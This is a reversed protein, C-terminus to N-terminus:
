GYLKQIWAFDLASPRDKYRVPDVGNGEKDLVELGALVPFAVMISSELQELQKTQLPTLPRPTGAQKDRVSRVDASAASTEPQDIDALETPWENFREDSAFEWRRLLEEKIFDNTASVGHYAKLFRRVAEVPPGGSLLESRQFHPAQDLHPLGLAHGIEHLAFFQFARSQFYQEADGFPKADPAPLFEPLWGLYMTPAGFRRRLAYTGLESVPFDIYREPDSATRPVFQPLTDLNILIDYPPMSAPEAQAGPSAFATTGDDPLFSVSLNVKGLWTAFAEEIRRRALQAGKLDVDAQFAVHLKQGPTWKFDITGAIKIGQALETLNRDGKLSCLNLLLVEGIGDVATQGIVVGNRLLRWAEPLDAVPVAQSAVKDAADIRLLRLAGDPFALLLQGRTEDCPLAQLDIFPEVRPPSAFACTGLVAGAKMLDLLGPEAVEELAGVGVTARYITSPKGPLRLLVKWSDPNTDLVAHYDRNKDPLANTWDVRTWTNVLDLVSADVEYSAAHRTLAVQFRSAPLAGGSPQSQSSDTAVQANGRLNAHVSGTEARTVRKKGLTWFSTDIGRDTPINGITVEPLDRHEVGSFYADNVLYCSFAGSAPEPKIPLLAFAAQSLSTTAVRTVKRHGDDDRGVKELGTVFLRPEERGAEVQKAPDDPHRRARYLDHPSTLVLVDHKDDKARYIPAPSQEGRREIDTM